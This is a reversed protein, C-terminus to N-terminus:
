RVESKEDWGDEPFDRIGASCLVLITRGAADRSPLIQAFGSELLVRDDPTLDSQRIERALIEGVGFLRRKEEFHKIIMEAALHADFRQCRLFMLRFQRSDVYSPNLGTALDYAGKGKAQNLQRDLEELKKEVMSPVEEDPPAIGHVEFLIKEHEDLSLKEIERALFEEARRAEENTEPFRDAPLGVLAALKFDFSRCGAM